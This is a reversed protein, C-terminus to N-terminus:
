GPKATRLDHTLDYYSRNLYILPEVSPESRTAVVQGIFLTSAPMAYNYVVRCDVFALGGALFPAGTALTVTDLGEFRDEENVGRGAFRDSLERQAASLITVGFVGSEHVLRYTRTPHGLTVAVIPPELSISTFSNVTMGHRQGDMASTVVSVGSPWHRMSQRLQEGLDSM